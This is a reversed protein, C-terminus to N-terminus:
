PERVYSSVATIRYDGNEDKPLAAGIGIYKPFMPEFSACVRVLMVDNSNGAQVADLKPKIEEARNRCQAGGRMAEINATTRPRLEIAVANRCDPIGGIAKECFLTRFQEYTMGNTNGLRLDRMVIDLTRDLLAGRALITTAEGSNAIFFFMTPMLILFELTATGADQVLRRRWGAARARLRSPFTM